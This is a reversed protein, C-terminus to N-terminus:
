DLDDRAQIRRRMLEVERAFLPEFDAMRAPMDMAAHWVAVVFVDEHIVDTVLWHRDVRYFGLADSCGSHPQLLGPDERILDLATQFKAIYQAAVIPGWREISDREIESLDDIASETLFIRRM